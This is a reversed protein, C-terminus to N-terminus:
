GIKPRFMVEGKRRSVRRLGQALVRAIADKRAKADTATVSKYNVQVKYGRVTQTRSVAAADKEDLFAVLEEPSLCKVREVSGASISDAALRELSRLAKKQNAIVIVEDYGAALCKQINRIEHEGSTTVTIECAIHHGDRELAVDVQGVGGLADAEVTSRWGRDEGLRKVLYQLYKHEAGGRGPQSPMARSEATPRLLEPSPLDAQTKRALRDERVTETPSAPSASIERQEQRAEEADPQATTEGRTGALEAEVEARPRAYTARSAARIAARRASAEDSAIPPVPNTTLTFDWDAREIRCIADGVGLRQLDQADFSSFGAALARADQEGLRFCIRTAPNTLVASTLASDEASLQRLEQHALILGLHYKRAGSLLSALSPTVFHHFEDLYLYFNRRATEAIDQRGFAAQHFRSVLLTGLLYANEEGIAGEALKALVIKGSDMFRRFDLRDEGQAVMYRIFKPRLFTNLRTLISAQPNGKLLSFEKAFYHVVEPDRVTGLFATRFDRDVLFRRLDLLTGGEESELFALIANGLITTMQDGWSTALRRFVAVLDSALLNKEVESHARLINFGVPYGEDAPDILVVDRIRAEPVRALIADILDGHPDLVALGAGAAIDQLIMSLLLTSKGTGSAGVLYTHRTRLAPDLRVTIRKGRHVNEGLVIGTRQADAPAAKTKKAERALKESAVSASPLHLLAALEESSLLMGSRHTKRALLDGAHLDEPYDDNTLPIFENGVPDRFQALGRGLSRAIALARGSHPSQAAIRVVAACLPQALKEEALAVIEPADAFFPEGQGDTVARRVSPAWPHRTAQFLVQFVGLEEARLDALAGIVAILPDTDFSGPRKLPLMFERSLGFDVIATDSEEAAEWLGRLWAREEQIAAEPFYGHLTRRVEVADLAHCAFVISTVQAEGVVEFAIPHPLASLLLLMREAREKTVKVDPPLTVLLEVLADDAEHPDPLPEEVEPVQEALRRRSGVLREVLKSVFTPKRADDLPAVQALPPLTHGFFPRFPPELAVPADWVRWGRGRVEWHYFEETLLEEFSCSV